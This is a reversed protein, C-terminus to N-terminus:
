PSTTRLPTYEIDLGYHRPEMAALAPGSRYHDFAIRGLVSVDDDVKLETNTQPSADTSRVVTILDPSTAM